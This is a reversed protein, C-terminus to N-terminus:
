SNNIVTVSKMFICTFCSVSDINQYRLRMENDRCYSTFKQPFEDSADLHMLAAETLNPQCLAQFRQLPYRTNVLRMLQCLSGKAKFFRYVAVIPICAVSCSALLWGFVFGIVICEFMAVLLIIRSGVYYDFLQFIYVGGNTVMLLGVFFCVISSFITLLVRPRRSSFIEPFTDAVSSVLGEVGVFQSGLGLLFLMAFFLVSWLPSLPMTSLAKPYAVFALGPGSEAVDEIPVGSTESRVTSHHFDNFGGLATLTGLSISYSFFIQTGADSWVEFSALAEWKPEMYYLIGKKAGELTATRGLLVAMLLFPATATIYLVKGSARIGRFICLFVTVWALLLCLALEWRVTGIEDIGASIGLVRREWYENVPDTKLSINSDAISSTNTNADVCFKTNWFNGCNSWPVSRQMSAFLYFFIWALIVNYYSNLCFLIFTGAYGVGKFLPIIEWAEIGGRSMLQGISVELFFMPIGTVFISIFYPILFACAFLFDINRKWKGRGEVEVGSDQPDSTVLEGEALYGGSESEIEIERKVTM